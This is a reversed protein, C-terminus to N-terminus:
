LFELRARNNMALDLVEYYLVRLRRLANHLLSLAHDRFTQHISRQPVCAFLLPVARSLLAVVKPTPLLAFEDEHGDGTGVSRQHECNRPARLQRLLTHLLLTALQISPRQVVEADSVGDSAAATSAPMTSELTEAGSAAFRSSQAGGASAVARAAFRWGWGNVSNDSYFRWEFENGDLEVAEWDGQNRGSRM